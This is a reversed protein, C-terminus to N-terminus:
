EPTGQRSRAAFIMSIVGYSCSVVVLRYGHLTCNQQLENLLEKLQPLETSYKKGIGSQGPGVSYGVLVQDPTPM